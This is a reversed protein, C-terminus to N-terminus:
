IQVDVYLDPVAPTSIASEEIYVLQGLIGGLSHICKMYGSWKRPLFCDICIHSLLLSPLIYEKQKAALLISRSCTLYVRSGCFKFILLM